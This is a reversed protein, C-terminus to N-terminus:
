EKQDAQPRIYLQVDVEYDAQIWIQQAQINAVM